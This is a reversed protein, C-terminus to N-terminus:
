EPLCPDARGMHNNKRREHTGGSFKNESLKVCMPSSIVVGQKPANVLTIGNIIMELSSNSSLTEKQLQEVQVPVISQHVPEKQMQDLCAKRVQSLRYYYNAKSIDHTHCWEDVSMGNPRSQCDRIQDAWEMLRYRRAVTTTEIEM